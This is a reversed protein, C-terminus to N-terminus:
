ARRPDKAPDSSRAASESPRSLPRWLCANWYKKLMSELRRRNSGQGLFRDDTRRLFEVLFHAICNKQKDTLLPMREEWLERQFPSNCYLGEYWLSDLVGDLYPQDGEGTALACLYAPLYYRYAEASLLSLDSADPIHWALPRLQQWTKGRVARPFSSEITTDARVLGEPLPPDMDGFAEELCHILDETGM